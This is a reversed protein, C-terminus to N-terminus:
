VSKVLVLAGDKQISEMLADLVVQTKLSLLPWHPDITKSLVLASFTKIMKVEQNCNYLSHIKENGIVREHHNDVDPNTITKFDAQEPGKSIVFDDLSLVGTTGAIEISQRFATMFSNDFTAQIGNSWVLHSITDIPTGGKSWKTTFARVSIPLELDLAWLCFRINYHTCDLMEMVLIM